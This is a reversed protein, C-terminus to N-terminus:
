FNLRISFGLQRPPTVFYTARGFYPDFDSNDKFTIGREDTLNRAFLTAQWSEYEFGMTLDTIRYDGQTERPANASGTLQNLSEGQYSHMVTIYGDGAGLGFDATDFSYTMYMSYSEDAFMPLKSTADLGVDAFGGIFRDDAVPSASVENENIWTLNFGVELNQGVMATIDADFGSIKGDDLNAIVAQWPQNDGFDVNNSPDVVEVQVDTWDMIYFSMNAKIRGDALTAKVGIEKNEVMDSDYAIPFTPYDSRGRNVGGTRFGESYVGYIMVDDTFNYQLGVKPIFGDESMDRTKQPARVCVGGVCTEQYLGEPKQVFYDITKEVDYWRGGLLLTMNETINFDLEGFLAKNERSTQQSSYWWTDNVAVIPNYYTLYAFGDSEAYGDVYTRFDWTEDQDSWFAGLTWSTRDGGGTLRLELSKSENNQDNELYGVPDDGFEYGYGFAHFYEAYTQTDHHYLTDRDYYSGAITLNAFGLDGQIVLSTAIFEDERKEDTFKVTKLDGRGPDIDDYGDVELDQYHVSLDTTWNDSMLWRVGVRGGMWSKDNYNDELMNANNKGGGVTDGLINDIYGGDEKTFGSIRIALKDEAIPMNVTFDASYSEDGGSFSGVEAGVNGSFESADPKNTVYRVTGSQSDAGFLTSQPGSLTEIRELDVPYIDPALGTLSMPQEDLYVAATPDQLFGSGTSVGRFVIENAGAGWQTVNMSGISKSLDQLTTIGRKQIEQGSLAQIMMPVDQLSESRQRATVVVEELGDQAIVAPVGTLGLATAVATHILTKSYPMTGVKDKLDFSM